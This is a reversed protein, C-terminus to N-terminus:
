RTVAAVAVAVAVTAAAAAIVCPLGLAALLSLSFPRSIERVRGVIVVCPMPMWGSPFGVALRSGGGIQRRVLKAAVRGGVDASMAIAVIVFLVTRHRSEGGVIVIIIRIRRPLMDALLRELDGAVWSGSRVGM